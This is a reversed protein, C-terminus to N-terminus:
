VIIVIKGEAENAEMCRHASVIDDIAFVRGIKIKLNGCAVDDILEQLPMSMFDEPEGSYSTLAVRNPISDMPAFDGLTWANGVIGAMCVVGDRRACQLSDQLTTTGVLELIRDFRADLRALQGDDILVRDAGLAGLLEVRETRRTTATVHAGARHALAIAAMGVSTTGGRILLRHEEKLHLSSFLAGWATQLMEPLAGLIDWGLKSTILRVQGAPVCTFEAYSGDFRRGMGGMVTAVVDGEAFERGPAADVVGVAEIGLIRPFAVSPSHGQRTFLESRNLGFAKVAIRVEGVNPTPIPRAELSLVEPGGAQHVVAAKMLTM